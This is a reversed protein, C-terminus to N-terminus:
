CKSFGCGVDSCKMCGEAAILYSSCDPCKEALGKKREKKELDEIEEPLRDKEFDNMQGTRLYDSIEEDIQNFDVKGLLVDEINYLQTLAEFKMLGRAFGMALSHVGGDRTPISNGSGIDKLQAIHYKMKKGSRLWLSTLRGLAEMYGSEETGANGLQAFVEVPEYNQNPDVIIQMHINGAYTPQRLKISPIIPPIEMPNEDISCTKELKTQKKKGTTLVQDDRSGDRYITVGKCGLENALHYIKEVDEPPIDNPTNVTKSVANDVYKQFAAQIKLHQEPPIDHASPFLSKIEEQLNKLSEISDIDPEFYKDAKAKEELDNVLAKTDIGKSELFYQFEQNIEILNEGLSDQVNRKYIPNFIPEIGGSANNNIISITGTPAITTTTANRIPKEEKYISKEFNPFAGREEALKMSEDKSFDQILKMIREAEKIAEPSDYSINRKVLCDAFGMVGLGIKRNDMVMKTIEPLPYKSRDIVNDLFRTSSRTTRELHNEDLEGKEDIMKRLNISGLNCAEYPLLPQEGCPNTSEMEGVEPTANYKNIRDIFIIGPDGNKWAQQSIENFVKKADLSGVVKNTRPNILDYAENKELSELFKDTIAVSINFNNIGGESKCYIFEEIDPHDVRLIGMNAGRRTGGQKIQETAADFVKMFSIPGSAVGQTSMVRSERPRLNSFSYGTGGGSKHILATNKIADFIGEISDPVPLVFCAALQQLDRGANMLTPSNPLFYGQSMLNYFEQEREQIRSDESVHSYLEETSMDKTVKDKLGELYFADAVAIDNAVRHYMDEATEMLNGNEDRKLYRREIVKTASPTLELSDELGNSYKAM